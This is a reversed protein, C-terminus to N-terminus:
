PSAEDIRPIEIVMACLLYVLSVNYIEHLVVYISFVTVYTQAFGLLGKMVPNFAICKLTSNFSPRMISNLSAFRSDVARFVEQYISNLQSSSLLAAAGTALAALAYFCERVRPQDANM